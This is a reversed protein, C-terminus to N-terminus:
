ISKPILKINFGMNSIYDKIELFYKENPKINLVTCLEKGANTFRIQPLNIKDQLKGIKPILQYADNGIFILLLSSNPINIKSYIKVLNNSEHILGADKLILLNSFNLGFEDLQNDPLKLVHDFTTGISCLKEFIEAENKTLNSLVELTRLSIKGPNSIEGALIKAWIEQTESESVDQAKNFFRTRWDADIPDASVTEPLFPISKEAIEEINQQRSIEQNFLREKTRKILEEETEYEIISKQANAKAIIEIKLAEAEAEKRIARPKYYTGIAKSIEGILKEVPKGEFKVLSIEM